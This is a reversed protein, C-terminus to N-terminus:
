DKPAVLLTIGDIRCVKVEQGAQLWSTDESVTEAKVPYFSGSMKAVLKEGHLELVVSQQYGPEAMNVAKSTGLGKKRLWLSLPLFMLCGFAFVFLSQTFSLAFLWSSIAASFAGMSIALIVFTGTMLEVMGFAIAIILWVLALM